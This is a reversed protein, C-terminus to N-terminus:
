PGVVIPIVSLMCAPCSLSFRIAGTPLQEGICGGGLFPLDATVEDYGYFTVVGATGGDPWRLGWTCIRSSFSTAPLTLGADMTAM